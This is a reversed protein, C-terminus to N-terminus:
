LRNTVADATSIICLVSYTHFLCALMCRNRCQHWWPLSLLTVVCKLAPLTPCDVHTTLEIRVQQVPLMRTTQECVWVISWPGHMSPKPGHARMRWMLWNVHGVIVFAEGYSLEGRGQELRLYVAVSPSPPPYHPLMYLLRSIVPLLRCCWLLLVAACYHRRGWILRREHGVTDGGTQVRTVTHRRVRSRGRTVLQLAVDGSSSIICRGHVPSSRLCVVATSACPCCHGCWCSGAGGQGVGGGGCVAIMAQNSAVTISRFLYGLTHPGSAVSGCKWRRTSVAPYWTPRTVTSTQLLCTSVTICPVM